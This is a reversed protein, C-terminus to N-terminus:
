LATMQPQQTTFNGKPYVNRPNWFMYGSAGFDNSAKIQTHMGEEAFHRRDFAYDRFAQLWPRFHTAPLNTRDQARQMSLNIIEYPNQVPNRYNPIGLHFGSPYLMLSVVDVAPAIKTIDQGITTDGENWASYGFIAASVMVNHPALAKHASTLFGTIAKTRSEPNTPQSFTVGKTDPFRVYDFHVEDFGMEAAAKAIAINYNWTEQQFPDVWQLKERDVFTAGNKKVALQPNAKSLLDDKFVVIRAILYLNQQKLKALTAQADKFLVLKQAGIKDALPINVKFPILGRDGKMDIVLANLNNKRITELAGERLKQSALGYATLYLARVTFPKLAIEQNASLTATSIEQKSYGPARVKLTDSSGQMHFTGDAATRVIDNNLTVVAHAIPAKTQADIVRGDYAHLTTVFLVNLLVFIRILNKM